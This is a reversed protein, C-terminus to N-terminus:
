QPAPGRVVQVLDAPRIHKAFASKVDGANMDFYRKAARIPEDLPLGIVARALLGEAVADESSESLPIQRLLLAKAQHLEAESVDETRMQDLDRQILARAKSVNEPNCGYNVSYSARTESAHLSVDVNYVYGAVQRLDHYLRTAYFGGGLVHNGLQLAYYDPDFRNLNLQEALAVTDQVAEQDAVNAASAKNPPIAPLTTDPKPGTAKWDGFWKEIVTKAEEPSVDGIVVITTLDPRITAAHYQKVSDLTIKAITEPTTERLVPDGAPLLALNLARSTRYGPSKMNGAVFQATQQKVVGFAQEPLAPHLENDALLQVGRSFNDKLVKVSFGYGASENAAIDDLAKQFALRDLSQTGYSYLGDLIQSLGEEGPPTQLDGNHKV